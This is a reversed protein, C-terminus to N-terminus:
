DRMDAVGADVAVHRAVAERQLRAVATPSLDRATVDFGRTALPLTQTGIGSAVDLIRLNAARFEGLEAKILEVLTDGQRAMSADWDEFIFHYYSALDDYFQQTNSM